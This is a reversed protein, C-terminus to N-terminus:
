EATQRDEQGGRREVDGRGDPEVAYGSCRVIGTEQGQGKAVQLRSAAKSQQTKLLCCQKCRTGSSGSM